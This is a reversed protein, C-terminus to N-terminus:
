LPPTSQSVERKKLQPLFPTIIPLMPRPEVISWAMGGCEGCEGCEVRWEEVEVQVETRRRSQSESTPM